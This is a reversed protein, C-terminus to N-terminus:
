RRDPALNRWERELNLRLEIPRRSHVVVDPLQALMACVAAYGFRDATQLAALLRTGVEQERELFGPAFWRQASGTVQTPTGARAVLEGRHQWTEPDGFQAATCVLVAGLLRQPEALLLEQGVAGGVSVGAYWFPAGEDGREAQARDVVDLVAAALDAATLDDLSGPTVRSSTGHGPLEWGVVDLEDAVHPVVDQWLATVSTGLSPGLVLLPKSADRLAFRVASLHPRTM